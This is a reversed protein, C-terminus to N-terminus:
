IYDVKEVGPVRIKRYLEGGRLPVTADIGIQGSTREASGPEGLGRHVPHIIYYDQDVWSRTAVAWEVDDPNYIDIDPDVVIVQRASLRYGLLTQIVMRPQMENQKQMSVVINFQATGGPTINVGRIDAVKSAERFAAAALSYKKLWHNETMPMGTLMAHFIGDKRMTVATVEAVFASRVSEGGTTIYNGPYEGFPGCETREGPITVGEIVIEANAPVAVDITECKVLEVPAGRFAGAIEMEDVGLPVKIQSALTISPEVGMVTAFELGKGKKEAATIIANLHQFPPALIGTRNRGLLRRRHISVNGKGTDPHKAIEVGSTFYRDCDKESYIPVPWKTLDIDKGKLIVEKVPGTSMLKPNVHKDQCQLYHSLIQDETADIPLGCALAMLKQTAYLGGMARWGTYGKINEFLLAPGDVDSTKRIGAAFGFKPDVAKKVRALKGNKELYDLYDRFDKFQM